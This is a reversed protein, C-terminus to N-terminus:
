HLFLGLHMSQTSIWYCSHISLVVQQHIVNQFKCVCKEPATTLKMIM